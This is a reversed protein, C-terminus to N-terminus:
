AIKTSALLVSLTFVAMLHRDEVSLAGHAAMETVHPPQLATVIGHLSVRTILKSSGIWVEFGLVASGFDEASRVKLIERYGGRLALTQVRSAKTAV